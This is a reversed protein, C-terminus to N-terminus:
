WHARYSLSVVALRVISSWTYTGKPCCSRMCFLLCEALSGCRCLLKNGSAATTNGVTRIYWHVSIYTREKYIGAQRCIYMEAARRSGCKGVFMTSLFSFFHFSMDLPPPPSHPTLRHLLMPAQSIWERGDLALQQALDTIATYAYDIYM